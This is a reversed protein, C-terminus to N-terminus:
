SSSVRRGRRGRDRGSGVGWLDLVEFVPAGPGIRSSLSYRVGMGSDIFGIGGHSANAPIIM